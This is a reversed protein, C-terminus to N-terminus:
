GNYMGKPSSIASIYTTFFTFICTSRDTGQDYLCVPRDPDQMCEVMCAHMLARHAPGLVCWGNTWVCYRGWARGYERATASTGM